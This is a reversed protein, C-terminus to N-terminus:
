IYLHRTFNHWTAFRSRGYTKTTHQKYVGILVPALIISTLGFRIALFGLVPYYQLSLKAAGYSSGWLMAVLILCIDSLLLLQRNNLRNNATKIM